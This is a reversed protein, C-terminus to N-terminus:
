RRSTRRGIKAAKHLSHFTYRGISAVTGNTIKAAASILRCYSAFLDDTIASIDKNNLRFHLVDSEKFTKDYQMDGVVVNKYENQKSPYNDGTNWDDAM